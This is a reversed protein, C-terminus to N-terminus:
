LFGLGKLAEETEAVWAAYAPIQALVDLDVNQGIYDFYDARSRRGRRPRVADLVPKPDHIKEVDRPRVPLHSPDSGRLGAWVERDALLWAETERVPVLPIVPTALGREGLAEVVKAAKGRENHDNHVCVLHCDEALEVVARCVRDADKITWCEGIETKAVDVVHRTGRETLAKLQRFVVPGLFREDTTNEAVLGPVLPRSVVRGAARDGPVQSGAPAVRVNGTRRRRPRIERRHRPVGAGQGSGRPGGHGHLRAGRSAVPVARVGGGAFPQHHHGAAASSGVVGPREPGNGAGPDAAAVRRASGSSARERDGGGVSGRRPRSRATGRASRPDAAHRGVSPHQPREGARRPRTRVVM